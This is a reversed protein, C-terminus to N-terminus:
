RGPTFPVIEASQRWTQADTRHPALPVLPFAVIDADATMANIATWAEAVAQWYAVTCRAAILWPLAPQLLFIAPIM